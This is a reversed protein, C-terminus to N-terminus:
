NFTKKSKKYKGRRVKGDRKLLKWRMGLEVLSSNGFIYKLLEDRKELSVMYYDAFEPFNFPGLRALIEARAMEEVLKIIHKAQSKKINDSTIM